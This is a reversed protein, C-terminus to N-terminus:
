KSARAHAGICVYVGVDRTPLYANREREGEGNMCIYSARRQVCMANTYRSAYPKAYADRVCQHALMAQQPPTAVYVAVSSM